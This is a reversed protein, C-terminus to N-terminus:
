LMGGMEPQMPRLNATAAGLEAAAKGGAAAVVGKGGAAAVDIEGGWAAADLTNLPKGGENNGEEVTPLGYAEDDDPSNEVTMPMEGNGEDVDPSNEVTMPMEGNGEDVDPSNEVTM